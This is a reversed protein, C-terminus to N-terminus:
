KVLARSQFQLSQPLHEAVFQRDHRGPYVHAEHPVGLKTLLQALQRAGREFGFDDQDGCDFYIKMRKLKAANVRAFAFPTNRAWFNQDLPKGFLGSMDVEDAHENVAAIVRQPVRQYLAPAHASVSAFMQPYKFAFRLAGYGGMSTGSIGRAARTANVLYRAEIAPIFERIFFDEYRVEGDYSNIYFSNDGDPTVILFDGIQKTERLREVINWGGSNVLEQENGGLGHLYYLVPYRRSKEADYGEPLLACYRVPAGLIRSKVTACEVRGAARAPLASVLALVFTLCLVRVSILTKM